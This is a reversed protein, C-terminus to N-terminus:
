LLLLILKKSKINKLVVICAPTPREATDGVDYM